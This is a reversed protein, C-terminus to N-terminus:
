HLQRLCSSRQVLLNDADAQHHARQLQWNGPMAAQAKAATSLEFVGSPQNVSRLQSM